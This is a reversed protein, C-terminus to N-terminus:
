EHTEDLVTSCVQTSSFHPAADELRNVMVKMPAEGSPLRSSPFTEIM